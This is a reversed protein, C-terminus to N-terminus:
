TIMQISSGLWAMNAKSVFACLFSFFEAPIEGIHQLNSCQSLRGYNTNEHITGTNGGPFCKGIVIYRAYISM